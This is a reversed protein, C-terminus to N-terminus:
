HTVGRARWALATGETSQTEPLGHFCAELGLRGQSLDGPTAWPEGPAHMLDWGTRAWNIESQGM